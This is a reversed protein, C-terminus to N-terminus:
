NWEDGERRAAGDVAQPITEAEAAQVRGTEVPAFTAVTMGEEPVNHALHYIESGSKTGYIFHGCTLPIIM